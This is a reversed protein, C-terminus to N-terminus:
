ALYAIVALVAGACASGAAGFLLWRKQTLVTISALAIAIQLLTM